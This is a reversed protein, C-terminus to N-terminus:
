VPHRGFPEISWLDRSRVQKPFDGLAKPRRSLEGETESRHAKAPEHRIVQRFDRMDILDGSVPCLYFNDLDDDVPENPRREGRIRSELDRLKTMALLCKNKLFTGPVLKPNALQNATKRTREHTQLEDRWHQRREDLLRRLAVPPGM